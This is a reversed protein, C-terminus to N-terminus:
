QGFYGIGSSNRDTEITDGLNSAKNMELEFLYMWEDRKEPRENIEHVYALTLLVIARTWRERFDSETSGSSLTAAHNFYRYVVNSSGNYDPTPYFGIKKEKLYFYSPTGTDTLLNPFNNFLTNFDIYKPYHVTSSSDTYKITNSNAYLAIYNSALDYEQTGSVSSFTATTHFVKTIESLRRQADNIAQDITASSTIGFGTDQLITAVRTRIQTLTSM